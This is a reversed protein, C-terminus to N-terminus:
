DKQSKKLKNAQYYEKKEDLINDKNAEYYERVKEQM